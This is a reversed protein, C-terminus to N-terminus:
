DRGNNQEWRHKIEEVMEQTPEYCGNYLHHCKHCPGWQCTMYNEVWGNFTEQAKKLESIDIIAETDKLEAKMLMIAFRLEDITDYHRALVLLRSLATNVARVEEKTRLKQKKSRM